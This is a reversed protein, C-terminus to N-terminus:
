QVEECLLRLERNREGVNQIGKVFLERTGYTIKTELTVQPHYRLRVAHTTVRDGTNQPALPEIAAWVTDPSLAAYMGDSDPTTTTANALTVRKNLKGIDM